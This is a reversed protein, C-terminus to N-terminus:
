LNIYNFSIVIIEFNLGKVIFMRGIFNWNGAHEMVKLTVSLVKKDKLRSRSSRGQNCNASVTEKLPNWISNFESYFFNTTQLM